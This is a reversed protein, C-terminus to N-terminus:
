FKLLSFIIQKPQIQEEVKELAAKYEALSNIVQVPSNETSFWKRAKSVKCALTPIRFVAFFLHVIMFYSVILINENDDGVASRQLLKTAMGAVLGTSQEPPAAAAEAASGSNGGPGVM